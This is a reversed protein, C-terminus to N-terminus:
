QGEYHSLDFELLKSDLSTESYDQGRGVTAMSPVHACMPTPSQPTCKCLSKLSWRRRGDVRPKKSLSGECPLRCSMLFGLCRDFPGVLM